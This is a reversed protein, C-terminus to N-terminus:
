KGYKEKIKSFVEDGPVLKSKGSEIQSIRFEVEAAWLRDIDKDIPLNLSKLLKEVLILRGEAPLSLADETVRDDM